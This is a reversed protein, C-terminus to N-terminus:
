NDETLRNLNSNFCDDCLVIMDGEIKELPFLGKFEQIAENSSEESVDMMEGCEYCLVVGSKKEVIKKVDDNM